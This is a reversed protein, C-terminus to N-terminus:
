SAEKTFITGLGAAFGPTPDLLALSITSPSSFPSEDSIRIAPACPSWPIYHLDAVPTNVTSCLRKDGDDSTKSEELRGHSSPMPSGLM